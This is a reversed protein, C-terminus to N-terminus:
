EFSTDSPHISKVRGIGNESLLARAQARGILMSAMANVHLDHSNYLKRREPSKKFVALLDVFLWDNELAIRRLQGYLENELQQVDGQNLGVANLTDKWFPLVDPQLADALAVSPIPSMVFLVGPNEQKATALLHRIYMLSRRKGEPFHQFFIVQNLIQAAFAGSYGLRPEISKNIARLYKVVDVFSGDLTKVTASLQLIRTFIKPYGLRRLLEDFVWLLRSEERWTGGDPNTYAFWIPEKIAIVGDETLAYHPRDDPRLIDYFDNGTYFNVLVIDPSFRNRLRYKYLLYEQLPSYMGQGASLMVAPVGEARLAAELSFEHSKLPSDLALASHSDGVMVISIRSSKPLESKVGLEQSTRYIESSLFGVDPEGYRFPPRLGDFTVLLWDVGLVVVATILLQLAALKLWRIARRRWGLSPEQM